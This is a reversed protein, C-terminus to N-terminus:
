PVMMGCVFSPTSPGFVASRFLGCGTVEASWKEGGQFLGPMMTLVTTRITCRGEATVTCCANTSGGFVPTNIQTACTGTSPCDTDSACSKPANVCTSDSLNCAGPLVCGEGTANISVVPCLIEGACGQINYVDVSIKVDPTKGRQSVVSATVTGRGKGGFTCKSDLPAPSSCAPLGIQTTTNPAIRTSPDNCRAVAPVLSMTLRKAGSATDHQALVGAPWFGGAVLLVVGLVRRM